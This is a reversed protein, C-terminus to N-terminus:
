GQPNPKVVPRPRDVPEPRAVRATVRAVAIVLTVQTLEGVHAKIEIGSLRDSWDEGDLITRGKGVEDVELEVNVIRM